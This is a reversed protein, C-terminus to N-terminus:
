NNPSYVKAYISPLPNDPWDIYSTYAHKVLVGMDLKGDVALEDVLAQRDPNLIPEYFKMDIPQESYDSASYFAFAKLTNSNDTYFYKPYFSPKYIGEQHLDKVIAELQEKYDNCLTEDCTSGSWEIYIQRCNDICYKVVPAWKYQQLRLLYNKERQYCSDILEVPYKSNSPNFDIVAFTSYIKLNFIGNKILKM